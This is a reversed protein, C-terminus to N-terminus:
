FNSGFNVLKGFCMVDLFNDKLVMKCAKSLMDSFSLLQILHGQNIAKFDRDSIQLITTLENRYWIMCVWLICCMYLIHDNALNSTLYIFTLLSKPLSPVVINEGRHYKTNLFHDMKLPLPLQLITLFKM